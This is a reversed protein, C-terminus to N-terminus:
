AYTQGTSRSVVLLLPKSTSDTASTQSLDLLLSLSSSSSNPPSPTQM